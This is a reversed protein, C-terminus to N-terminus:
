IFNVHELRPLENDWEIPLHGAIIDSLLENQVSFVCRPCKATDILSGSIEKDWYFEEVRDWRCLAYDPHFRRDDSPSNLVLSDCPYIYGDTYLVPHVRGLHCERPQVLFKRQHFFPPGLEAAKRRLFHNAADFQDPPLNCDPILRVYRIPHSRIAKQIKEMAPPMGGGGPWVYSMGVTINEPVRPIIDASPLYDWTNASVRIWCVTSDTFHANNLVAGNTILGVDLKMEKLFKLLRGLSAYLTPEGGGSIIVAKLGLPIMRYVVDEIIGFYLDPFLRGERGRDAVSCFKCRLNCRETPMVHLTIPHNRRDILDKIADM